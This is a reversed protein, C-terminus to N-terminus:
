VVADLIEDSTKGEETLKLIQPYKEDIQAEDFGLLYAYRRVLKEESTLVKGDFYIMKVLNILREYRDWKDSPPVMPYNNKDNRIELVQEETLSLKKAIRMLLVLEEEGLVGDVRALMVLNRFHGKQSSQKGSEFIQAISGM